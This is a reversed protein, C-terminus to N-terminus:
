EQANQPWRLAHNLTAVLPGKTLVTLKFPGLILRKMARIKWRDAKSAARRPERRKTSSNSAELGLSNLVAGM